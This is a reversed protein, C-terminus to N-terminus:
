KLKRRYEDFELKDFVRIAFFGNFKKFKKSNLMKSLDSKREYEPLNSYFKCGTKISKKAEAVPIGSKKCDDEFTGFSCQVVEGFTDFVVIMHSHGAEPHEKRFKKRVQKQEETRRSGRQLGVLEGSLCREDNVSCYIQNGDKDKYSAFGVTHGKLEGSLYREDDSLVRFKNGLKDVVTITGKTHFYHTGRDFDDVSVFERKGTEKSIISVMGKTNGDFYGKDFEDKPIKSYTGDKNRISVMGSNILACNQRGKIKLASYRESGILEQQILEQGAKFNKFNMQWWASVMYNSDLSEALLSHARYHNELSLKACNLPFENFSVFEPFLAKPLIHHNEFYLENSEESLCLDLYEILRNEDIIKCRNKFLEFYEKKKM